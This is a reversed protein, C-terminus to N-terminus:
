DDWFAPTCMGAPPHFRGDDGVTACFEAIRDRPVRQAHAGDPLEVGERVHVEDEHWGFEPPTIWACSSGTSDARAFRDPAAHEYEAELEARTGWCIFSDVISSYVVYFDEDRKPKIITHGM